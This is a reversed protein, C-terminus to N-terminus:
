AKLFSQKRTRLCGALDRAVVANRFRESAIRRSLEFRRQRELATSAEESLIREARIESRLFDLERLRQSAQLCVAEAYAALSARYRRSQQVTAAKHIM